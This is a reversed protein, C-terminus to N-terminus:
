YDKRQKNKDFIEIAERIDYVHYDIYLHKLADKFADAVVASSFVKRYLPEVSWESALCFLHLPLKPLKPLM